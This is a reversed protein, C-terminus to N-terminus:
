SAPTPSCDNGTQGPAWRFSAVVAEARALQAANDTHAEVFINNGQGFENGPVRIEWSTMSGSTRQRVALSGFTANAQVDGSCGVAPGGWWRYVKVLIGGPLVDFADAGCAMSNGTRVCGERWSGQGMVALIYMVGGSEVGDAIVPWAAPYDFSFEGNDFHGPTGPLTPIATTLSTPTATAGDCAALGTALAAVALM